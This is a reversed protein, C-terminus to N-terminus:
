SRTGRRRDRQHGSSPLRFPATRSSLESGLQRHTDPALSAHIKSNPTRVTPYVPSRISTLSFSRRSRPDRLSRAVSPSACTSTPYTDFLVESQRCALSLSSVKDTSLEYPEDKPDKNMSEMLIEIGSMFGPGIAWMPTTCNEPMEKRERDTFGPWIFPNSREGCVRKHM